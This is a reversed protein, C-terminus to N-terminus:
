CFSLSFIISSSIYPSFIKDMLKNPFIGKWEVQAIFGRDMPVGLAVTGYCVLLSSPVFASVPCSSFLQKWICFATVIKCYEGSPVSDSGIKLILVRLNLYAMLRDGKPLTVSTDGKESCFGFYFYIKCLSGPCVCRCKYKGIHKAVCELMTRNYESTKNKLQNSGM